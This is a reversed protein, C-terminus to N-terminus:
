DAAHLLGFVFSDVLAQWSAEIINESVGITSWSREGDTSDILVRTVAGTGRSTELVRVKYDTLRLRELSPYRGGLAQRLAADLANVPGNGEGTADVLEGDLRLRVTAETEVEVAVDNWARSGSGSRHGVNVSFSELSFFDQEWGAAARMLLELSADAAEFHYGVFELEKLTEVIEGMTPADLEIGLEAAKLAVTSRGAMESVVFRTGNGVLEPLVHEYADSRRSIASTHLGAKHAFAKTGVYPQQPDAAFNVLEAVHHAVSTLNALRGEPLTEVGMKLSLNAIIPVLDCNGVREGYGNITGQVHTAGGAVGALANAVGCGTDNHLHVGVPTDLHDVVARVTAEVRGPLSGGNTDCLVLCDAGAMAAGELVALSFEPNAEYGDFFHEADYFVVLGQEKLYRVSDAVMAVGEELTTRLAETVHYDWAKGVICVVETGAAVLNALTPDDDVRGKVRRTSGFAVLKSTTLNLETRAREFFEEDKPNAGPWGGEIYHVGLRDLQDAIRLKDDVTLSIGELQAGDRLTTDYIEVAAPLVGSSPISDTSM